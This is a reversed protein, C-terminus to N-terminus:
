YIELPTRTRVTKLTRNISSTEPGCKAHCPESRYNFSFNSSNLEMSGFKKEMQYVSKYKQISYMVIRKVKYEQWSKTLNDSNVNKGAHLRLWQVM